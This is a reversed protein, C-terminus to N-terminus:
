FFFDEKMDDFIGFLDDHLQIRNKKIYIQSAVARNYHLSVWFDDLYYKIPQEFEKIDFYSSM